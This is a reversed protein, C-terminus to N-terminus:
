PRLEWLDVYELRLPPPLKSVPIAQVSSFYMHAQELFCRRVEDARRESAVLVKTRPGCLTRCTLVFDETSPTPGDGDIYCCDAALVFDPAPTALSKAKEISGAAGWELEEVQVWGHTKSQDLTVNNERVNTDLLPLVKQLDTSIVCAGLKALVIGVVGVGAGLEVAKAGVYRHMPQTLLYTALVLAGDWRCM